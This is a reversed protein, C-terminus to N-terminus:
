GPKGDIRPYLLVPLYRWLFIMYALVWTVATASVGWLWPIVAFVTLLRILVACQILLYAAVIGGPLVLPRGTHGLAVRTMVGMILGGVGGIGLAHQWATAHWGFVHHGALLLLALPIWLLSLHLIWLLPERRVLWGRWLLTRVLTMLATACAVFPVLDQFNVVVIALLALAILLLIEVAPITRVVGPDLGHFKLWNATFAPTIRGGVILMLASALILASNTFVVGDACLTGIQTLWLLLIVFVIVLQRFQRARLIRNGADLAVLPLFVLNIITSLMVLDAGGWTATLRGALWLSWLVFLSSGHLRETGTWVCVATLLFGAIAPNLFGFLMEHRHWQLSPYALPMTWVGSVHLTWIAVVLVSWVAASLFFIRFPYAFLQRMPNM